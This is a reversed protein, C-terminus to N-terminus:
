EQAMRDIIVEVPVTKAAEEGGTRNPDIGAKALDAPTDADIKPGLSQVYHALAWRTDEPETAFSPMNGLGERLTKFIQSVKRGNKWGQDQTFNRPKPNLGASAPGDGMGAPGHCTACLQTFTEKGRAVLEPKSVWPDKLKSVGGSAALAGKPVYVNGRFFLDTATLVIFIALFLFSTAFIAGNEKRDYLLNMFFLSVLSAKVTAVLFAVLFNFKGLDV